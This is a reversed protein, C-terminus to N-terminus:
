KAEPPAPIPQLLREVENCIDCKGVMACHRGLEATIINHAVQLQKKLELEWAAQEPPSASTSGAQFAEWLHAKFTSLHDWRKGAYKEFRERLGEVAVLSDVKARM